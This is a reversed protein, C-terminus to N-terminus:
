QRGRTTIWQNLITAAERIHGVILQDDTPLAQTLAAGVHGYAALIAATAESHLQGPTKGNRRQLTLTLPGLKQHAIEIAVYNQGGAETFFEGLAIAMKMIIPHKAVVKTEGQEYHLSILEGEKASRLFGRATDILANLTKDSDDSDSPTYPQHDECQANPEAASECCNLCDVGPRLLSAIDAIFALRPDKATIDSM